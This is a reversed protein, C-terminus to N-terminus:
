NVTIKDWNYFDIFRDWINFTYKEGIGSVKNSVYYNVFPHYLFIAPTNEMLAEQFVSYHVKREEESLVARGEELARDARVQDFGTINLGPPESQTSHWNIYRDPDRGVQQGYLLVEFNRGEICESRIEDPEKATVVVNIGLNDEWFDEIESALARHRTIDPVVFNITKDIYEPIFDENYPYFNISKDTYASRSIPGEVPIGLSQTMKTVPLVQALKNRFELDELKESRLNLFLAYYVGQQPFKKNEFRDLDLVDSHSFADIEGLKAAMLVEEENSYYTFILKRISARTDQNYLVVEKVAPGDREVGVVRFRGNSLPMLPNGSEEADKPMVGGTLMSLFPSFKNPLTYRVTYKDVKDTAVGSLDAVKFATYILDDSTIEHGDSWHQGEKIKITYTLGDDSVDYKEALDPVLVGYIDYKFLGRYILRSITKDNQTSAQSPLFSEPQGTLGERFSEMPWISLLFASIYFLLTRLIHMPFM